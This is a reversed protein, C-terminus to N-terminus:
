KPIKETTEEDFFEDLDQNTMLPCDKRMLISLADREMELDPDFDFDNESDSM